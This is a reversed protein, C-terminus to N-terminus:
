PLESCYRLLKKLDDIQKFDVPERALYATVQERHKGFLKVVAARNAPYSRGNQDILFYTRDKILLLDGKADLRNVSTSGSSYSQYERISSTGTSQEYGGQRESRAMKLGQKIALNVTSYEAMIELYGNKPDYWFVNEPSTAGGISVLRVVPESALALTDGSSDIFQMEGLLINYNFLAAAVTKNQYLLKGPQFQNYRYRKTFPVAKEGGVGGKIRIVDPAQALVACASAFGMGVIFLM